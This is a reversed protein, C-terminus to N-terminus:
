PAGGPAPFRAHVRFGGQARSGAEFRGGVLHVRERMGLLGHGAGDRFGPAAGRGDDSVTVELCDDGYALCVDAHAPGAHKLV